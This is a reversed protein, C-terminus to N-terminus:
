NGSSTPVPPVVVTAPLPTIPVPKAYTFVKQDLALNLIFTTKGLADSQSNLVSINKIYEKNNEFINVQKSLTEMSDAEGALNLGGASESMSFSSFWVRPMTNDEVFSFVNSSIKHGNVIAALDESKKKYDFVKKETEKQQDTGYLAIKADMAAIEKKQFSIKVSFIAYCFIIAILLAGVAYFAMDIWLYEKNKLKQLSANLEMM